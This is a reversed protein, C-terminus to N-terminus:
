QMHTTVPAFPYRSLSHYPTWGDEQRKHFLSDQYLRVTPSDLLISASQALYASLCLKRVTPANANVARWTNFHQLFPLDKSDLGLSEILDRCDEVTKFKSAISRANQRHYSDSSDALQVEVKQRWAELQHFEVYPLLESRLSQIINAPLFSRLVAHGKRAFDLQTQISIAPKSETPCPFQKESNKTQPQRKKKSSPPEVPELGLGKVLEHIESQKMRKMQVSQQRRRPKSSTTKTDSRSSSESLPCFEIHTYAVNGKRHRQSWHSRHGLSAVVKNSVVFGAVHERRSYIEGLCNSQRTLIHSSECPRTAGTVHVLACFALLNFSKMESHQRLM